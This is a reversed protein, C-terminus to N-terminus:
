DAPPPILRGFGRYIRESRVPALEVESGSATLLWWSGDADLAEIARGDDDGPPAPRAVIRWHSRVDHLPPRPTDPPAAPPADAPAQARAIADALVAAPLRVPEGGPPPERPGLDVLQALLGALAEPAFPRLRVRGPTSTVALVLAARGLSIGAAGGDRAVHMRCVPADIAALMLELRPDAAAAALGPEELAAPRRAEDLLADALDADLDLEGTAADHRARDSM